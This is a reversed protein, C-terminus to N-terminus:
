SVPADKWEHRRAVDALLAILRSQEAASLHGFFERDNQDALAALHPVLKAGKATLSVTQYRRDASQAASHAASPKTQKKALKKRVLRDNLKSITGRTMGLSDALDSPNAPGVRLMERLVVWEAVTVGQGVVKAAFAHSVHNSVFRLWYGLHAQLESVPATTSRNM